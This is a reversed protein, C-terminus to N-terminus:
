EIRRFVLYKGELEYHNVRLIKLTPETELEHFQVRVSDYEVKCTEEICSYEVIQVDSQKLFARYLVASILLGIVVGLILEQYWKM